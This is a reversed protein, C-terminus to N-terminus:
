LLRGHILDTLVQRRRGGVPPVQMANCAAQILLIFFYIGIWENKKGPPVAKVSLLQGAPRRTTNTTRNKTPAVADRVQLQLLNILQLYAIICCRM